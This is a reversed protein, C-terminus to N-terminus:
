LEFIFFMGEAYYRISHKNKYYINGFTSLASLIIEIIANTIYQFDYIYIYINAFINESFFIITNSIQNNKCFLIFYLNSTLM